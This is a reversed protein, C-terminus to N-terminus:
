RFIREDDKSKSRNKRGIEEREKLEQRALQVAKQLPHGIDLYHHLLSQSTSSM